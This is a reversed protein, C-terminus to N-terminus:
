TIPKTRHRVENLRAHNVSALQPSQSFRGSKVLDGDGIVLMAIALGSYGNVNSNGTMVLVDFVVNLAARKRRPLYRSRGPRAHM